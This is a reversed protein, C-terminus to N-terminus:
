ADACAACLQDHRLKRLRGIMTLICGTLQQSLDVGRRCHQSVLCEQMTQQKGIKEESDCSRQSSLLSQAYAVLLLLPLLLGALLLLLL